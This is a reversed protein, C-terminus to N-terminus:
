YVGVAVKLIWIKKKLKNCFNQAGRLDPHLGGVVSQSVHLLVVRQQGGPWIHLGPAQRAAYDDADRMRAVRSGIARQPENLIATPHHACAHGPEQHEVGLEHHVEDHQQGALAEPVRQQVSGREVREGDECQGRM